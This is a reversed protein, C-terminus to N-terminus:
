AGQTKPIPDCHEPCLVTVGDKSDIFQWPDGNNEYVVSGNEGKSKKLMPKGCVNCKMENNTKHGILTAM